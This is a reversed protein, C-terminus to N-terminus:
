GLGFLLRVMEAPPQKPLGSAKLYDAGAHAAVSEMLAHAETTADALGILATSIKQYAEFSAESGTKEAAAAVTPAGAALTAALAVLKKEFQLLKLQEKKVDTTM